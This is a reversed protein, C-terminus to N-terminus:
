GQHISRSTEKLPSPIMKVLAYHHQQKFSLRASELNEITEMVTRSKHLVIFKFTQVAYILNLRFKAPTVLKYICTKCRKYSSVVLESNTVTPTQSVADIPGLSFSLLGIFLILQYLWNSNNKSKLLKSHYAQKM